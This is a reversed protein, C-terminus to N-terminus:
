KAVLVVNEAYDTIALSGDPLLAINTPYNLSAPLSGLQVGRRGPMGEPLGLRGAGIAIATPTDDDAYRLAPLERDARRNVGIILAFTLPLQKM